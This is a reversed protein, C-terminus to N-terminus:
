GRSKRMLLNGAGGELYELIKKIQTVTYEAEEPNIIEYSFAEECLTRIIGSYIM